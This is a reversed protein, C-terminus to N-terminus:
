FVSTETYKRSIWNSVLLFTTAVVSNFLGVAAAYGYDMQEIGWRQVHTSIVDATSYIGPNYLLLIKDFGVSMLMGCKMVLMIIITPMICPITVHIVRQFRNAGDIAAAEHLDSNVGTIAAIFVISGYGLNQWIDSFLNIAWFYNPNSLLNERKVGLLSVLVDTIMGDVSCFERILQCVIVTSIFYPVYSITQFVKKLKLITVENLSLAFIITLPFTIVLGLGSIVFTNRLITWFDSSTFFRTFNDFGIWESGFFGQTPKFDEFAMILGFMPLYNFLLFFLIVPIALIYYWRNMVIDRKWEKLNKHEKKPQKQTAPQEATESISEEVVEATQKLEEM